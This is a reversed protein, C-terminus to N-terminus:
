GRYSSKTPLQPDTYGDGGTNEHILAPIEPHSCGKYVQFLPFLHPLHAAHETRPTSMACSISHSKPPLCLKFKLWAHAHLMMHSTSVSHACRYMNFHATHSTYRNVPFTGSTELAQRGLFVSAVSTKGSTRSPLSTNESLRLSVTVVSYNGPRAESLSVVVNSISNHPHLCAVACACTRGGQTHNFKSCM